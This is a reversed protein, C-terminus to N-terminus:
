LNYKVTKKKRYSFSKSHKWFKRLSMKSTKQFYSVAQWQVLHCLANRIINYFHAQGSTQKSFDTNSPPQQQLRPVGCSSHQAIAAPSAKLMHVSAHPPPGQSQARSLCVLLALIVPFLQLSVIFASSSQFHVTM